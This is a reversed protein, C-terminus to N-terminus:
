DSVGRSGDCPWVVEGGELFRFAGPVVGFEPMVETGGETPPSVCVLPWSGGSAPVSSDAVAGTGFLFLVFVGHLGASSCRSLTM